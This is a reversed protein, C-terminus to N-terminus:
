YEKVSEAEAPDDISFHSRYWVSVIAHQESLTTEVTLIEIGHNENIWVLAKERADAMSAEDRGGLRIGYPKGAFTACNMEPKAPLKAALFPSSDSSM